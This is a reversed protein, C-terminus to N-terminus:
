MKGMNMRMPIYVVQGWRCLWLPHLRMCFQMPVYHRLNVIGTVIYTSTFATSSGKDAVMSDYLSLGIAPVVWRFEAVLSPLTRAVGRESTYPNVGTVGSVANLLGKEVEREISAM